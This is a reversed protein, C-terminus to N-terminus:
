GTVEQDDLLAQLATDVCSKLSHNRNVPPGYGADVAVDAGAMRHLAVTM